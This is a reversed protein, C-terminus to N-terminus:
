RKTNILFSVGNDEGKSLSSRSMSFVTEIDAGCVCFEVILFPPPQRTV